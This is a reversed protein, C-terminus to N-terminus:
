SIFFTEVAQKDSYPVQKDGVLQYTEHGKGALLVIDGKGAISLAYRVAEERDPLVFPKTEMGTLIEAIIKEPDESAPNDSTVVVVDSYTEAIRGMLPRKSRD